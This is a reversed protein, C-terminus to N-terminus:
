SRSELLAGSLSWALLCFGAFTASLRMSTRFWGRFWELRRLWLALLAALVTAGGVAFVGPLGPPAAVTALPVGAAWHAVGLVWWLEPGTFRILFQAGAPWLVCLAAAASGLVTIPAVAVAAGLNAVAAVLSVRGSIGAILPATVVHAACAVAVADALPKPWGRAALRRSWVPAVVVLAATALVSLAFGVDVALQPAVAVLVLVSACLAPIAQRRRSSVVGALAIAAMV